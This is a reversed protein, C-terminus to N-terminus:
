ANDIEPECPDTGTGTCRALIRGGSAESGEVNDESVSVNLSVTVRPQSSTLHLQPQGGDDELEVLYSSGTVDSPFTQSVRAEELRDASRNYRDVQEINSALHEGVVQMEQRIVNERQDEVFTSGALILGGVLVTAISLTLVYSLTTSTARDTM